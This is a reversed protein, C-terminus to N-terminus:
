ILRTNVPNFVIKEANKNILAAFYSFASNAIILHKCLSMLQMDIYNNGQTNGEAAIITDKYSDFGLEERHELCWNLDDSFLIFVPKEVMQKIRKVAQFYFETSLAWGLTLFDGRRIHVGISNTTVIVNLLKKNEADTIEPFVLEKDILNEISKYWDRNIWYGHYYINDNLKLIKPNYQNPPTNFYDGKYNNGGCELLMTIDMGNSRLINCLHTGDRTCNILYEWVDPEFYQSLKYPKVNFIKELEYGNHQFKYFFFSDDIACFDEQSETLCRFFIYQFLQNGLGGNMYIIKM